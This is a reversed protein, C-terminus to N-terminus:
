WGLAKGSPWVPECCLLPNIIIIIIYLKKVRNVWKAAEEEKPSAEQGWINTSM